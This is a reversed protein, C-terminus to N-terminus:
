VISGQCSSGSGATCGYCHQSTSIKRKQLRELDFDKIHNPAQKDVSVGLMQNFDCDYIYGQYDVSLTHRCMVADLTAANFSNVLKQMYEEYNQSELLFELFRGIPLNNITLLHNFEIGFNERLEWRFEAELEKQDGSLFAGSPNYVLDLQLPNNGNTKASHNKLSNWEDNKLNEELGKQFGNGQSGNVVTNQSNNQKRCATAGGSSTNVVKNQSNNQKGYGVANLKQLAEISKYFVGKGRQRDTRDASYFPLSSVVRVEHERFFAPLDHYKRHSLIVTLNSRVIIQLSSINRAGEVFWRFHPNMEPAGGTLDVTSIRYRELIDLCLKLTELQMIEKRDPGADVHCHKCTQNCLYGLNIQFIELDKSRLPAAGVSLLKEQFTPLQMQQFRKGALLDCQKNKDALAHKRYQLSQTM